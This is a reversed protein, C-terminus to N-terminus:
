KQKGISFIISSSYIMQLKLSVVVVLSSWLIFKSLLPKLTMNAVWKVETIYCLFKISNLVIRKNMLLAYFQYLM